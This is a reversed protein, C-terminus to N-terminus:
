NSAGTMFSEYGNNVAHDWLERAVHIPMLIFARDRLVYNHFPYSLRPNKDDTCEWMVHVSSSGKEWKFFLDGETPHYLTASQWEFNM